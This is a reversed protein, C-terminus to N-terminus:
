LALPVHPPLLNGETVLALAVEYEPQLLLQFDNPSLSLSPSKYPRVALSLFLM